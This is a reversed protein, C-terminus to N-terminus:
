IFKGAGDVLRSGLPMSNSAKLVRPKKRLIATDALRNQMTTKRPPTLGVVISSSRKGEIIDLYFKLSKDEKAYLDLCLKRGPAPWRYSYVGSVVDKEMELLARTERRVDDLGLMKVM